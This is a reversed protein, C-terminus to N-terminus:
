EFVGQSLGHKTQVNGDVRGYQEHGLSPDINKCLLRMWHWMQFTNILNSMRARSYM